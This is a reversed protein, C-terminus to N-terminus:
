APEPEVGPRLIWLSAAEIALAVVVALAFTAAIGVSELALNVVVYFSATGYLGALIGRLVDDAAARGVHRHTFATMVALYVPFTAVLGSWSPGLIPAAATIAVVLTTAVAMRAPLDWAPHSLPEHPIGSRPIVLPAGAIAAIVVATVLWLPAGVVAHLAVGVVVFAGAACALSVGAGWRRDAAAYAVCFGAIAALGILSGVAANAAFAPGHDVAMFFLVPGSTLPLAILWGGVTPGWRRAALTAGGILLPTLGVKLVLVLM